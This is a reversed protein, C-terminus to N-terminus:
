SKPILFSLHHAAHIRQLLDNEENTMVGFIPSPARKTPNDQFLRIAARLAEAEARDDLDPQPTMSEPIKVGEKMKGSSLIQKKILKGITMRVIWPIQVPFGEMAWVMSSSLHNCTRALDWRGLTTYGSAMLRDVEPMIEDLTRFQLERRGPTM